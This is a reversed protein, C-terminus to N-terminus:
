VTKRPDIDIHAREPVYSLLQGLQNENLKSKLVISWTHKGGLTAVQPYATSLRALKGINMHRISQTLRDHVILCSSRASTSTSASCNIRVLRVSPPWWLAARAELESTRWAPWARQTITDLFASQTRSQIVMTEPQMSALKELQIMADEQSQFDASWTLADLDAVVVCGVALQHRFPLVLQTAVVIGPSKKQSQQIAHSLQAQTRTMDSDILHIPINAIDRRTLFDELSKKLKQSGAFGAPAMTTRHCRSCTTSSQEFTGCHYCVLMWDESRQNMRHYRFPLTCTPCRPTHGCLRCELRTTYAKRASYVLVSTNSALARDIADLTTDQLTRLPQAVVPQMHPWPSSHEIITALKHTAAYEQAPTITHTLFTVHAGHIRGLHRAVDPAWFRPTRDSGYSDNDPDEVVIHTLTRWPAFLAIRTGIVIRASNEAIAHWLTRLKKSGITSHILHPDYESLQTQIWTAMSLDPVLILTQGQSAEIRSRICAIHDMGSGVDIHVLPNDPTTTTTDSYETKPLPTNRTFVPTALALTPALPCHWHHAIWSALQIQAPTVCPQAEIISSVKKLEFSARKLALKQSALTLQELVIGEVSRKGYPVRVRAGANVQETSFYDVVQPAAAGVSTMLAVRVIHM